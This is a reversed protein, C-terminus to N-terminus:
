NRLIQLLANLDNVHGGNFFDEESGQEESGGASPPVYNDGFLDYGYLDKYSKINALQDKSGMVNLLNTQQNQQQDAMNTIADVVPNTSTAAATKATTPLATKAGVSATKAGTVLGALAKAVNTGTSTKPKTTTVTPKTTTVTPKTTTVTPKITTTGTGTGTTTGGTTTGSTITADDTTIASGTTGGTTTGTRGTTTTGGTTTGTGGTTTTTGGTTTKTGGTGGTGGTLSQILSTISGVNGSNLISYIEDDTIDTYTSPFDDDVSPLTVDTGAGDIYTSSFDDDVSALGELGSLDGFDGNVLSLIDANSLGSDTLEDVSNIGISRLFEDTGDSNLVDFGEGGPAFYGEEFDASNPGDVGSNGFFSDIAGSGMLLKLPDISKGGSGVYQKAANAAVKTGVDGLIDTIGEAGSVFSGAQGGLYSLAASKLIDEPPKGSLVGMAAVAMPGGIAALAINGIPGLDQMLQAFDNSSAGATYFVPNGKADFKVGYGTNGKGAFTGGFFDGQQREGYTSGVEQGTKKNGFVEQKGVPAIYATSDSGNEGGYVTETKVLKPDVPKGDQDVYGVIKQSYYQQGESDTVLDGQGYVPQVAADVTKTIKGFDKISTAGTAAIIEAMDRANAEASGKGEGSWKSSLNQALIQKTITDVASPKTTTTATTTAAPPPTAPPAYVDPAFQQAFYDVEQTVPAPSLAADYRAQIAGVDTNTVQAMRDPSVGAEQMTQAILADSADPNANLWGLIDADSVAM